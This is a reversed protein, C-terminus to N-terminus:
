NIVSYSKLATSKTIKVNRPSLLRHSMDVMFFGNTCYRRFSWRNIINTLFYAKADEVTKNVLLEGSIHWKFSKM